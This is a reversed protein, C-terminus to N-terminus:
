SDAGKLAEYEARAQQVTPLDDAEAWREIVDQYARRASAEDGAMVHARAIGLEAFGDLAWEPQATPWALIKEFEAIAEAPQDNALHALGRLYVVQQSGREYRGSMKLAEIAAVADGQGLAIAAEIGPIQIAMAMTGTPYREGLGNALERAEDASGTLGLVISAYGMVAPGPSTEVARRAAAAAADPRGFFLLHGARLAESMSQVGPLGDAKAMAIGSSYSLDAESWAGRESAFLAALHRLWIRESSHGNWELHQDRAELNGLENEIFAMGWHVSGDELGADLARRMMARAEEVRGLNWYAWAANTYPFVHDPRLRM